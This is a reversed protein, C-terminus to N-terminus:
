VAMCVGNAGPEFGVLSSSELAKLVGRVGPTRGGFALADGCLKLAQQGLTWAEKARNLVAPRDVEYAM